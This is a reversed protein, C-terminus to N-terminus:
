YCSIFVSRMNNCALCQRMRGGRRKLRLSERQLIQQRQPLLSLLQEDQQHHIDM